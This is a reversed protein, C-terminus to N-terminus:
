APATQPLPKPATLHGILLGLFLALFPSEIVNIVIGASFLALAVYSFFRDSEGAGGVLTLSKWALLLVYPLAFLGFLNLIYVFLNDAPNTDPAFFKQPTGISGIGGGILPSNKEFQQIADPWTSEIRDALSSFILRTTRSSTPLDLATGIFPLTICAFVCLLLVPKSLDLSGRLISGMILCFTCLAYAVIMGKTTTLAVVVGTIIWLALRLIRHRPVMVVILGTFLIQAAADWSFRSFGSLRDVGGTYWLRNAEIERGMVSYTLGTWPLEAYHDFAIGAACIAWLVGFFLVPFRGDRVLFPTAAMGALVPLFIKLGFAVQRPDPLQLLGVAAHVALLFLAIGFPGIKKLVVERLTAYAVIFVLILDRIYLLSEAGIQYLGFRILAEVSFTLLVICFAVRLVSSVSVFKPKEWVPLPADAAQPHLELMRM